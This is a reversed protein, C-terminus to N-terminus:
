ICSLLMLVLSVVGENPHSTIREREREKCVNQRHGTLKVKKDAHTMANLKKGM